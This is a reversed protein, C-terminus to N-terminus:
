KGALNIVQLLRYRYPRAITRTTAADTLWADPGATRLLEGGGDKATGGQVAASRQHSASALATWGRRRPLPLVVAAAAAVVAAFM